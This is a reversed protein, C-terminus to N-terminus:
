DLEWPMKRSRRIPPTKKMDSVLKGVGCAVAVALTCAICVTLASFTEDREKM